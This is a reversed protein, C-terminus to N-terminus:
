SPQALPPAVRSELWLLGQNLLIALLACFITGWLIKDYRNQAIGDFLLTGLGGAGFKAGITAIAVCVVAAVREGAIIIPMALPLQVRWWRQRGSMGVGAAAELLQPSVSQWAVVMNRVLIIQSYVVLAAVVATRGLGFVPLLLILLAISPITYLVSLLGLVATALKESQALLLSLPVAIVTSVFLAAGTMWIHEGLLRMIFPWNEVVYGM